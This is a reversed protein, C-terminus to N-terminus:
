NIHTYNINVNINAPNSPNARNNYSPPNDNPEKVTFTGIVDKVITGPPTNITLFPQNRGYQLYFNNFIFGGLNDAVAKGELFIPSVNVDKVLNTGVCDRFEVSYADTPKQSKIIHSHTGEFTVRDFLVTGKVQGYSDSAGLFIEARPKTHSTSKSNFSFKSNVVKVSIPISGANMLFPAIKFGAFNNNRFQCGIFNINVLRQNPKNPELDVGAEPQAGSTSLFESNRVWVDQASIISMGQRKNNISKVDEITINQSYGGNQYSNLNIGDGGSDRFTLGKVTINDCHDLLFAHRFEGSTYESKNMRLTAGYGEITVNSARTLMWLVAHSDGFAGSKARLVVGPEFFITKNKIDFLRTPKIIWDSAKKDIVIFNSNSKIANEFAETADTANWGFSSALVAGSPYNGATTSTGGSGSSGGTSGGTTGGTSGGTSGGSGGGSSTGTVEITLNDTDTLGAADKVTLSVEYTGPETFTRFPNKASSPDDTSFDWYYSVIGNDDSSDNSNFQVDLPANGSLVSAKAVAVPAQNAAQTETVTITLTDTDTAGDADKVTLRVTYEGAESFTKSPNKNTSGTGDGFNWQYSAIGQDDSSSDANFLVELPAPGETTNANARAVPATNDPEEVTITVAAQDTLGAADRVTLTVQYSGAETFTHEPNIATSGQGDKFDWAYGQISVDDSSDKGSFSVTLPAQGSVPTATAVANPAANQESGSTTETAPEEVEIEAADQPLNYTVILKPWAKSAHEKSAIALDNGNAHYLIITTKEAPMDAASLVIEQTSGAIYQDNISGLLIDSAPASNSDLDAESWDTTAGRYVEIIGDGGDNRVSFQFNVDTIYGGADAIPSLDFLLYSTRNGEELRILTENYSKGSELYADDSPPFATTRSEFGEEMGSEGDPDAAAEGTTEEGATAEETTEEATTEEETATEEGETEESDSESDADEGKQEVTQSGGNATTYDLIDSDKSCAILFTLAFLIFFIQSQHIRTPHFRM